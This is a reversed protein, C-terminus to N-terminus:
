FYNKNEKGTKENKGSFFYDQCNGLNHNSAIFQEGGM